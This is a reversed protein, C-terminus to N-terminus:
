PERDIGDEPSAKRAPLHNIDIGLKEIMNSGEVEIGRAFRQM